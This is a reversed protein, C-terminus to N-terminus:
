ATLLVPQEQLAGSKIGLVWMIVGLQLELELPDIDRESRQLCQAFVHHVFMCTPLVYTCM